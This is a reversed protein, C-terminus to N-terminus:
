SDSETSPTRGEAAIMSTAIDRAKQILVGPTVRAYYNAFEPM